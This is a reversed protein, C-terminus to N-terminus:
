WPIEEGTYNFFKGTDSSNLNEIVNVLGQASEPPTVPATVGGMDTQVWGPHTTIVTIGDGQLLQSLIKAAMNMSAKSMRYAIASSGARTISGMQSSIMVVCPQNGKELLPAYAQTVIVPSVSNTTIINEISAMKFVGFNRVDENPPNIGANNILLDLSDTHQKVIDVSAAISDEDNIELPFVVVPNNEALQQLEDAHDPNRCSAFIQVDGRSLYAKVLALGVGRNSGTILIKQM